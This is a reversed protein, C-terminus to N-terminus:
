KTIEMHISKQKDIESTSSWPRVLFLSIEMFLQTVSPSWVSDTKVVSVCSAKPSIDVDAVIQFLEEVITFVCLAAVEELEVVTPHRLKVLYSFGPIFLVYNVTVCWNM